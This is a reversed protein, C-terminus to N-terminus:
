DQFSYRLSMVKLMENQMDPATYKNKLWCALQEDYESFLHLLQSFNSDVESSIVSGHLALGQQGLFRLISADFRNEKRDEALTSSLLEGVHKTTAPLTVVREIAEKHCSSLEHCHFVRTADNWNKFGRSIFAQDCTNARLTGAKVAQFVHCLVSELSENWHLWPWKDFLNSYDSKQVKGLHDKPFSALRPQNPKDPFLELHCTTGVPSVATASGNQSTSTSGVIQTAQSSSCESSEGCSPSGSGAIIPRFYREM